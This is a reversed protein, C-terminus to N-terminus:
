KSLICKSKKLSIFVYEKKRLELKAWDGLFSFVQWFVTSVINEALEKQHLRPSNFGQGFM